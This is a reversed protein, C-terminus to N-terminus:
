HHSQSAERQFGCTSTSNSTSTTGSSASRSSLRRASKLVMKSFNVKLSEGAAASTDSYGVYGWTKKIRGKSDIILLVSHFKEHRLNLQKVTFGTSENGQLDATIQYNTPQYKASLITLLLILSAFFPAPDSESSSSCSVWCFFSPPMDLLCFFTQAEDRNTTSLM